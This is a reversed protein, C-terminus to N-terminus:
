VYLLKESKEWDGDWWWCIGGMEIISWICSRCIIPEDPEFGPEKIPRESNSEAPPAREEEEAEEARWLSAKAWSKFLATEPPTLAFLPPLGFLASCTYQSSHSLHSHLRYKRFVCISFFCPMPSGITQQHTRPNPNPYWAWM